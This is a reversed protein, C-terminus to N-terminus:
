LVLVLHSRNTLAVPVASAPSLVVGPIPIALFWEMRGGGETKGLDATNSLHRLRLDGDALLM